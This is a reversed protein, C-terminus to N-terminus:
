HGGNSKSQEGLEGSYCNGFRKMPAISSIELIKIGAESTDDSMLKMPPPIYSTECVMKHDPSPMELIKEMYSKGTKAEVAPGNLQKKKLKVLRAPDSCANEIREELFLQHLKTHSPVLEPTEGNRPRAGKKRVKRIRKERHVEVTETVSSASQAKFFSPDTYRKLCAGAGAVDFKDLLFLRPPGRCEEYLDMIFRPLDGRTVLNQEFQLNPHWDIGGNTFFSSHHTQSLFSKELAPVNAELQQVHSMISHGRVATAMVEEHLDHFLEAAFRALIICNFTSFM